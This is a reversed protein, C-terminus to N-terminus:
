LRLSHRVSYCDTDIINAQSDPPCDMHHFLGGDIIALETEPIDWQMPQLSDFHDLNPAELRKEPQLLTAGSVTDHPSALLELPDADRAM